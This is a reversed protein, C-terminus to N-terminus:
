ISNSVKKGIFFSRAKSNLVEQLVELFVIRVDIKEVRNRKGESKRRIMSLM